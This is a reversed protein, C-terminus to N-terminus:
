GALNALVPWAIRFAAILLLVSITGRVIQLPLAHALSAGLVGGFVAGPGMALVLWLAEPITRGQSGLTALKAAAGIIATLWMIASSTGIAERLRVKAFVQLMPVMVVGGGLGLLGGIFGASAGITGLVPPTAREEERGPEPRKRLVRFLNMLSYLAIFCALFLMLWWGDFRNSVWVGVLIALAMAPLIIRILDRRVVGARSHRWAAPISVLVNVCMAAAMYVHHQTHQQDDYGLLIALGPLMIMSGGIGALGGLVGAGLGILGAIAIEFYTM